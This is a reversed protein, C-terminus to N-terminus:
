KKLLKGFRRYELLRLGTFHGLWLDIIVTLLLLAEPSLLMMKQFFSASLVGFALITLLLTELMARLAKKFPKRLQIEALNEATLLLVLIAVVSSNFVSQLHLKASLFLFLCLFLSVPVLILAMKAMFHVKLKRFLLIMLIEVLWIALFLLLGPWFGIKLLAVAAVLPPFFGLGQLGILYRVIAVVTLALPLLLILIILDLSYGQGVGWHIAYKLFNTLGLSGLQQHLFIEELM